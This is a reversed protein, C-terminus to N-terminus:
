RLRAGLAQFVKRVESNDSNPFNARQVMLIYIRQNVPDIWAQTGYAGGHGHSGPGLMATVGQPDRVVCWGIGWGNGETFGTRLEGTQVTTMLKVGAPSLYRRGNWEGGNAIMQCFRAYDPATSFLGGNGAPFRERSTAPLGLLFGIASPELEGTDTRRYSTALRKLQEENLYFSTDRMGLPRFLRNELFDPFSEGSVVEVIRAATNISSQCYQWRAGPEFQLPQRVYRAVADALTRCQRAEEGSIEAMGSTHTLLSRITLRVPHGDSTKIAKFEPLYKDVPDDLSLKGADQLMMIATGTIPKTMSAIWFIADRTMPRDGAVDAQGATDFHLIAEPTAVITVAGAIEKEEIFTLMAAHIAPDAAPSAPAAAALPSTGILLPLLCSSVRLLLKM